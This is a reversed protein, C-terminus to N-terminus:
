IGRGYGGSRSRSKFVRQVEKGVAKAISEPDGKAGSVNINFTADGGGGGGGGDLSVPISKGDPLPVVAETGHLVAPYGTSPGTMVGGGSGSVWDVAAGIIGSASGMADDIIEGFDLGGLWEMLGEFLGYIGEIARDFAETLTIDGSLLDNITGLIGGIFDLLGNFVDFIIGIAWEAADAFAAFADTGTLWVVLDIARATLNIVLEIVEGMVDIIGNLLDVAGLEVLTAGLSELGGIIIDSASQGELGMAALADEVATILGDIAEFVGSFSDRFQDLFGLDEMTAPLELFEQIVWDIVAVVEAMASSWVSLIETAVSSGSELIADFNIQSIKDWVEQLTDRLGGLNGKLKETGESNLGFKDALAVLGASVAVLVGIMGFFTFKIGDATKSALGFPVLLAKFPGILGDVVATMKLFSDYLPGFAKQLATTKVYTAGMSKNLNGKLSQNALGVQKIFDAIGNDAM